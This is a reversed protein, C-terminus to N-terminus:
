PKKRLSNPMALTTIHGGEIELVKDLCLEMVAQAQETADAIADHVANDNDTNNACNKQYDYLDPLEFITRCVQAPCACQYVLSQDIVKIIQAANYKQQM